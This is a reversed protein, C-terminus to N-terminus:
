HILRRKLKGERRGRLTLILTLLIQLNDIAEEDHLGIFAERIMSTMVEYDRSQTAAWKADTAKIWQEYIDAAIAEDRERTPWGTKRVWDYAM